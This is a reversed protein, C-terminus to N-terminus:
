FDELDSEELKVDTVVIKVESLPYNESILLARIKSSVDSMELMTKQFEDTVKVSM